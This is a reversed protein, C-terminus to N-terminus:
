QAHMRDDADFFSRGSAVLEGDSPHDVTEVASVRKALETAEQQIYTALETKALGPGVILIAGAGSIATAVKKLFAKDLRAHGSDGANAKHHLHERPHSSHLIVPLSNEERM